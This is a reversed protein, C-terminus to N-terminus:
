GEKRLFYIEQYCKFTSFLNQNNVILLNKLSRFSESTSVLLIDESSLSNDLICRPLLNHNMYVLLAVSLSMCLLGNPMGKGTHDCIHESGAMAELCKRHCPANAKPGM